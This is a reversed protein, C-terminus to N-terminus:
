TRPNLRLEAVTACARAADPMGAAAEDVAGVQELDVVRLLIPMGYAAGAGAAGRMAAAVSAHPVHAFDGGVRAPM